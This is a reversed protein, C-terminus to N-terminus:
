LNIGIECKVCILNLEDGPADLTLLITCHFLCHFRTSTCYCNAILDYRMLLLNFGQNKEEATLYLQCNSWFACAM